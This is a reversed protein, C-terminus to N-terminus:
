NPPKRVAHFADKKSQSTHLELGDPVLAAAEKDEQLPPTARRRPRAAQGGEEWSRESGRGCGRGNCTRWGRSNQGRPTSAEDACAREQVQGPACGSAAQGPALGAGEVVGAPPEAVGSLAGGPPSPCPQERRQAGGRVVKRWGPWGARRTPAAAATVAGSLFFAVPAHSACSAGVSERGALGNPVGGPGLGKWLQPGEVALARAGVEAACVRSHM